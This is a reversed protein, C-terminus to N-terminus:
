EVVRMEIQAARFPLRGIREAWWGPRLDIAPADAVPLQAALLAAAKEVPLGSLSPRYREGEVTATALARGDVRFTLRGASDLGLFQINNVELTKPNLTFGPPVAAVLQEYLLGNVLATEVATAGVTAQLSLVLRDATEGVAASYDLNEVGVIQLSDDLLLMGAPLRGKIEGIAATQLAALTQTRLQEHDAATVLGDTDMEASWTIRQTIPHAPIVSTDLATTTQATQAPDAMLSRSSEVPQQVPHLTITATPMFLAVMTLVATVLLVVALLIVGFRSLWGWPTATAAVQSRNRLGFDVNRAGGGGLGDPWAWGDQALLGLKEQRRPRWRRRGRRAAAISSFVPVGLGWAQRAWRQQAMTERGDVVLAVDLHLSDAFRRLRVLDIGREVAEVDPPLVFLVRPEAAWVLRDCVSIIDDSRDLEIVQM